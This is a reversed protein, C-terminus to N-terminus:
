ESDDEPFEEDEEEMAEQEFLSVTHQLAASPASPVPPASPVSQAPTTPPPAAALQERFTNIDIQAVEIKIYLEEIEAEPRQELLATTLATNAENFRHQAESLGKQIEYTSM